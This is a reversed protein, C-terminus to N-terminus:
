KSMYFSGDERYVRHKGKNKGKMSESRKEKTEKSQKTGLKAARMKQKVEPKNLSIKLKRSLLKKTDEKHNRRLGAERMLKLTEESYIGTKGKNWGEKGKHHISKHDHETLFILEPAPRDYYLGLDILEEMSKNEDTELRHHCHWTQTNDAIALDYNEILSIDECCFKNVNKSIM